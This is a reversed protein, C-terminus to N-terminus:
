AQQLCVPAVAEWVQGEVEDMDADGAVQVVRGHPAQRSLHRYNDAIQRQLPDREYQDPTGGRRRRRASAQVVDVDIFVTLDPIRARMNLSAVWAPDLFCGQYALSSLVYRDCVVVHGSRLAPEVECALHDLRDAAFLLAL